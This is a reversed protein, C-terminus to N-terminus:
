KSKNKVFDAFKAMASAVVHDMDYYKFEALRGIFIIDKELKALDVYSLYIKDTESNRIPYFLDKRSDAAHSFEYFGISNNFKKEPTFWKHEHIRTFPVSNDTYNIVATGQIEHARIEEFVVKRYPLWGFKGDYFEDISGTFVLYKFKERWNKKYEDFDSDPQIKINKHALMREFIKTYGEIPIGQYIDNYYNDDYNFRIPLRKATAVNIESPICGWQKITYYKFFHEYLERGVSSLIYNEFNDPKIDKVRIEEIFIKAERPTFIKNFFQNITMLNIPLNYIKGNTIAKVRNIYNNFKTFRSIFNWVKLSNTHFIHPGYKHIEINTDEDRFSYCNGGIHNRRDILLCEFGSEAALRAFISGAFGCGVILFDSIYSNNM